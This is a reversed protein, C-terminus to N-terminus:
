RSCCFHGHAMCMQGGARTRVAKNWLRAGTSPFSCPVVIAAQQCCDDTQGSIWDILDHASALCLVLLSDYIMTRSKKIVFTHIATARWSVFRWLGCPRPQDVTAADHDCYLETTKSQIAGGGRRPAIPRVELCARFDLGTALRLAYTDKQSRAALSNVGSM